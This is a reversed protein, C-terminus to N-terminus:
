AGPARRDALLRRNPFPLDRSPLSRRTTRREVFPRVWGAATMLIALKPRLERTEGVHFGDVEGAETAVHTGKLVMVMM